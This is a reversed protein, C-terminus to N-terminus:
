TARLALPKIRASSQRQQARGGAVWARDTEPPGQPGASDRDNRLPLVGAPRTGAQDAARCQAGNSRRGRASGAGTGVGAPSTACRNLWDFM